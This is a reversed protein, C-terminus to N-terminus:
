ELLLSVVAFESEEYHETVYSQLITNGIVALYMGPRAEMTWTFVSQQPTCHRGISAQHNSLRTLACQGGHYRPHTVVLSPRASHVQTREYHPGYVTVSM